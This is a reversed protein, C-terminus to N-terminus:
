KHVQANELFQRVNNRLGSTMPFFELLLKAFEATNGLKQHWSTEM